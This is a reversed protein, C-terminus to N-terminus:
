LQSFCHFSARMNTVSLIKLCTNAWGNFVHQLGEYNFHLVSYEMLCLGSWLLPDEESDTLTSIKKFWIKIPKPIEKGVIKSCGELLNWKDMTEIIFPTEKSMKEGKETCDHLHSEILFLFLQDYIKERESQGVIYSPNSSFM